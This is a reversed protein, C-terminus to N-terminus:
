SGNKEYGKQFWQGQRNKACLGEKQLFLLGKMIDQSSMHGACKVCIEDFYLMDEDLTMFITKIDVSNKRFKEDEFCIKKDKKECKGKNQPTEYLVKSQSADYFDQISRLLVAGQKILELPGEAQKQFVLGPVAFIKKGYSQAMKATVMSGSKIAGEVVIVGSSALGVILRNRRPFHRAMAEMFLPYESLILGGRDLIDQYLQKNSAPYISRLGSGLIAITEGGCKVATKHAETDIGRALGSVIVYNEAFDVTLDRTMKQGYTTPYRTGVVAVSKKLLCSKEGQYYFGLPPDSLAKLGEPFEDDKYSIYHVGYRTMDQYIKHYRVKFDDQYWNQGKLRIPTTVLSEWFDDFCEYKGLYKNVTKFGLGSIDSCTCIFDKINM